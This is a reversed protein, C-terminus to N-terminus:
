QRRTPLGRQRWVKHGYQDEPRRRAVHWDRGRAQQDRISGIDTSLHRPNGGNVPNTTPWLLTSSLKGYDEKVILICILKAPAPIM